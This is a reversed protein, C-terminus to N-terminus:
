RTHRRNHIDNNYAELEAKMARLRKASVEPNWGCKECVDHEKCDIYNNFICSNPDTRTHRVVYLSM